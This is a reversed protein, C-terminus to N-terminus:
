DKMGAVARRKDVDAAVVNKKGTSTNALELSQLGTVEELGTPKNGVLVEYLFDFADSFNEQSLELACVEADVYKAEVTEKMAPSILGAKLLRDLKMARNDSLLKSLADGGDKNSLTLDPKGPNPTKLATIAEVAGAETAKDGSLGLKKCISKLFDMNSDGLSLELKEFSELGPIVPDTCLAVHTIPAIYEIGKGDVAKAPVYISVDSTLALAPDKLEIVGFLSDGEVSLETVWGQNDAGSGAVAHTLPVSVKNGNSLWLDFTKVWHNLTDLAVTFEQKTSDKVYSGVKILQKRFKTLGTDSLGLAKAPVTKLQLILDNNM